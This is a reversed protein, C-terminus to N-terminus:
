SGGGEDVLRWALYEFPNLLATRYATQILASGSAEAVSKLRGQPTDNIEILWPRGTGDAIIDLGAEVVEPAHNGMVADIAAMTTMALTGAAELVKRAAAGYLRELYAYAPVVDAGLAVNGAPGQSIVRAVPLVNRWDGGWGRQMLVRLCYREATECPGDIGRQLVMPEMIAIKKMLRRVSAPSRQRPCDLGDEYFWEDGTRIRVVGRGCSGIRPKLYSIGWEEALRFFAAPEGATEPVTLGAERLTRMSRLKDRAFVCFAPHNVLTIGHRSLLRRVRAYRVQHKKWNVRSYCARCRDRRRRWTGDVVEWGTITGDDHFGECDTFLLRMRGALEGAAIGLPYDAPAGPSQNSPLDVLVAITIM